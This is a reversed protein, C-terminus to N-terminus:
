TTRRILPSLILRFPRILLTASRMCNRSLKSHKSRHFDSSPVSSFTAFNTWSSLPCLYVSGGIVLELIARPPGNFLIASILVNTDLVIRDRKM